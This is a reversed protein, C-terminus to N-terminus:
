EDEDVAPKVAAEEEDDFIAMLGSDEFIERLTKQEEGYRATSPRGVGGDDLGRPPGQRIRNNYQELPIAHCRLLEAVSAFGGELAVAKARERRTKMLARLRVKEPDVTKVAAVEEAPILKRAIPPLGKKLREQAERKTRADVKAKCWRHYKVLSARFRPLEQGCERCIPAPTMESSM